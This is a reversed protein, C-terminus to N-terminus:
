ETSLPADSRGRRRRKLLGLGGLAVLALSAPEPVASAGSVTLSSFFLAAAEGTPPTASTYGGIEVYSTDANAYSGPTGFNYTATSSGFSVDSIAGTATDIEYSLTTPTLPNYTGVFAIPSGVAAGESYQQLAGYGSASLGTFGTTTLTGGRFPSVGDYESGTSDTQGNFGLLTFASSAVIGSPVSTTGVNGYLVNASIQLTGTNYAGLTLAVAMGNDSRFAAVPLGSSNHTANFEKAYNTMQRSDPQYTGGPLNTAGAGSPTLGPVNYNATQTGYNSGSTFTDQIITSASAHGVGLLLSAAGAAIAALASASPGSFGPESTEGQKRREGTEWGSM